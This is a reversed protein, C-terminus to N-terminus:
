CVATALVFDIDLGLKIQDAIPCIQFTDPQIFVNVEFYHMFPKKGDGCVSILIGFPVIKV